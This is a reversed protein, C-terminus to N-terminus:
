GAHRSAMPETTVDADPEFAVYPDTKHRCFTEAIEEAADRGAQRGIEFWDDVAECNDMSWSADRLKFDFQRHRDGLVIQLPLQTGQIQSVSMEEAVHKSWFLMGADSGPPALSYSAQGTGLSLMHVESLDVSKGNHRWDCYGDRCRLIRAAEALAVVGPDIAWLGGDAYDKGDPMTKHPFYTPAATAALIIDSITWQYDERPIPLHPTRFVHTVGDTLNVTPVILRTKTMDRLTENDFGDKMSAELMQPCYRSGFFHDLNRGVRQRVFWRAMPYMMKLARHPTRKPRPHFIQKAHKEYFAQMEAATTGRCLASATIAGTSTGAILDFYNWLGHEVRSELECLFGIGFAGRLGGGALSLVRFM